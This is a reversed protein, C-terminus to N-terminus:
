KKQSNLVRRTVLELAMHEEFFFKLNTLVAKWFAFKFYIQVLVNGHRSYVFFFCKRMHTVGLQGQVQTYYKHKSSLAVGSPTKILWPINETSPKSDAVSLPCKVECCSFGCCDCSIIADPSAGIFPHSDLIYLGADIMQVKKHGMSTLKQVLCKKAEEEMERGYKLAPLNAPPKTYGLVRSLLSDSSGKNRMASDVEHFCSATIRGQRQRLWEQNNFQGVTEREVFGM